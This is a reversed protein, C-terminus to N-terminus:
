PDADVSYTLSKITREEDNEGYLKADLAFSEGEKLTIEYANLALYGNKIEASPEESRKKCATGTFAATCICLASFILSIFKKM